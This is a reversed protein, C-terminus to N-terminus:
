NRNITYFIDAGNAISSTESQASWQPTMKYTIKLENVPQVLGISYNLFLRPSLAKSLIVSTNQTVSQTNKDMQSTAGVNVELGLTNKLQQQLQTVPSSGTGNNLLSAASMLLQAGGGTAESTPRGLLMYSLIDAQSLGSPESFLNIQSTKLPGKLFVGVVLDNDVGTMSTNAIATGAETVPIVHTLKRSAVMDVHPNAVDGGTFQALGKTIDFLQGFAHYTSDVLQLQGTAVTPQNPEDHITLAGIIRAKLGGYQLSVREGLRLHLTSIFQWPSTTTDVFSVDSSLRLVSKQYQVFHLEAQPIVINGTLSLHAAQYQVHVDPSIYVLYSALHSALFHQGKVDLELTPETLLQDVNGKLQITGDGSRASGILHLQKFLDGHVSLYFPKLWINVEPLRLAGKNLQSDVQCHPAGLTGSAKLAVTWQGQLQEIAPSVSPVQQLNSLQGNLTAQLPQKRWNALLSQWQPLSLQGQWQGLDGKLNLTATLADAALVAQTTVLGINFSVDQARHQYRLKVDAAKILVSGRPVHQPQQLVDVATQVRGTLHWDSPLLFSWPALNVRSSTLLIHWFSRAQWNAQWCIAQLGQQLCLSQPMQIHDLGIQLPAPTKLLWPAQGPVQVRWQQWQGHWHNSTFGGAWQSMLKVRMAQLALTVRHDAYDGQSKLAISALRYQAWAWGQGKLLLTFKEPAQTHFDLDMFAKQIRGSQFYGNEVTTHLELATDQYNSQVRGRSNLSGAANPWVDGLMPATLQWTVDAKKKALVGNAQFLASGSQLRWQDINLYNPQWSITGQMLVPLGRWQGHWQKILLSAQTPQWNMPDLNLTAQLNLDLKSPWARWWASLDLAKASLAAQMQLKPYWQVQSTLKATLPWYASELHDIFFASRDGHGVLQWRQGKVTAVLRSQYNQWPGALQWDVNVLMSPEQWKVRDIMLQGEVRTANAKLRLSGQSLQWSNKGHQQLYFHQIALQTIQVAPWFAPWQLLKPQWLQSTSVPSPDTLAIAIGKLALSDVVVQWRLLQWAQWQLDVHQITVSASQNHYYVQHLIVHRLLPGQVGGIRLHGASLPVIVKKFLWQTGSSTLMLGLLALWLALVVVFLRSMLYKLAALFKKM